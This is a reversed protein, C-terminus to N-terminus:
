RGLMLAAAAILVLVGGTALLAIRSVYAGTPLRALQDKVFDLEDLIVV